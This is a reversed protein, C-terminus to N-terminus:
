SASRQKVSNGERTSRTLVHWLLYDASSKSASIPSPPHSHLSSACTSKCSVCITVLKSARVEDADITPRPQVEEWKSRWDLHSSLETVLAMLKEPLVDMDDLNSATLVLM